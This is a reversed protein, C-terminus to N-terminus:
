IKKNSEKITLYSVGIIRVFILVMGIFHYYYFHEGNFMVGLVVGVLTSLGGFAAMTTVPMRGLAFVNMQVAVISCIVSLFIFGIMNDINFFPTFYNSLTGFYIHRSVNIINFILAGLFTAFYTIDMSSYHNSSKRTFVCFMSGSIVALIIFIMGAITDTGNKTDTKFAIYVVGIIGIVLLIIKKLSTKEKLILTEAISSSIPALSLLVSVTITSSMTIGITEFLMYLVPEFIAALLLSIFISNKYTDVKILNRIKFDIKLIKTKNLIFLIVFSLLFRLALIDLADTSANLKSVFFVSSGYIINKLVAFLYIIFTM